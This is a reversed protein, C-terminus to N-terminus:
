DDNAASYSDWSHKGQSSLLPKWANMKVAGSQFASFLGAALCLFQQLEAVVVVADQKVPTIQQM